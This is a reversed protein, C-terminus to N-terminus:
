LPGSGVGPRTFDIKFTVAVSGGMCRESYDAEETSFPFSERYIRNLTSKTTDQSLLEGEQDFAEVLRRVSNTSYPQFSNWIDFMQQDFNM